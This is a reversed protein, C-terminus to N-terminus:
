RRQTRTTAPACPTNSAAAALQDPQGQGSRYEIVVDRGEFYGLESLGQRFHDWIPANDIIGIRPINTPRQQARAALPSDVGIGVLLSIFERRRM